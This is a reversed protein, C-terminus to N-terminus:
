APKTNRQSFTRGFVGEAIRNKLMEISGGAIMWGRTRRVCYEVLSEQSFGMGGMVQMAENSVEWGALNCALKAMATSQASPLGHEGELAARYLLMQAQELKMHMDAFKWQLGQFECLPRGFQQRTMAYDRAVNFAYRGLALARSANGLREVNFGSIQKKFGGEGLLLNEKPIRCNDFYLQSWQEGNMFNSPTGVVFGPTGKEVLVSGIGQVGPGFRVYILFLEAEPSHTSFVKSGNIVIEDGDFTATTKLETVASGADPESMGLSILKRAGLLDPLFREKQQPSAYEIFTRIPGFNGAQVIDASKPCALAVQQIALVAHMLTGGQGGEEEPFAIGLLGQQAMLAATEWPYTKSHARELAGPALKDQAFRAVSDAYTQHEESLAFDM